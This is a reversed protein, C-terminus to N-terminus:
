RTVKDDKRMPVLEPNVEIGPRVRQLGSVVVMERVTLGDTIVRLGDHLRGVKVRRYDVKKATDVVYLFKQGQDTGLAEEAVLLPKYPNGVPLRIRVFLGPTLARDPNTFLARLQWTGTDPDVRNDVFKIKGDRRPFGEENAMGLWVPLGKDPNWEIKKERILQQAKLTSREDLNFYAYIPDLSVITTLATDDAKVLNGPDIFRRGVRGSLPARVQTYELNLRALDLNAKAVELAGAAETRDGAVKDFDERGMAGRAVLGSARQYDAELRKLHGQAQLVNGEARALEAKYPRPDVEFLVDDKTVETGEKFKAKILYGTVRARVTIDDVAMIRGPFDEYDTVERDTIPLSVQVEPPPM